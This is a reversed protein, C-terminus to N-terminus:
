GAVVGFFIVRRYFIFYKKVLVIIVFVSRDFIDENMILFFVSVEFGVCIYDSLVRGGDSVEIVTVLFFRGIVYKDGGRVYFSVFGFESREFIFM